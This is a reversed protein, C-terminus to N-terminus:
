CALAERLKGEAPTHYYWPEFGQIEKFMADFANEFEPKMMGQMSALGAKGCEKHILQFINKFLRDMKIQVM